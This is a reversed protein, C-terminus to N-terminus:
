HSTKGKQNGEEQVKSGKVREIEESSDRTDSQNDVEVKSQKHM